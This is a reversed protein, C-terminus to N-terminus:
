KKIFQLPKNKREIARIIQENPIYKKNVVDNFGNEEIEGYSHVTGSILKFKGTKSNAEQDIFIFRKKTKNYDKKTCPIVDDYYIEHTYNKM